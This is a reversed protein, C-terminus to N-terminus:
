SGAIREVDRALEAFLALLVPRLAAAARVRPNLAHRVAPDLEAFARGDGGDVVFLPEYGFGGSGRAARAIRGDCQGSVVVVEDSWPNALALVCRFHATRNGEDIEELDRLLAANNEADTAREHAYSASRVGPRGGLADVELGSEEAVALMGTARCAIRAKKSAAAELTPEDDDLPSADAGDSLSVFDCGLDGLLARLEVLKPEHKNALVITLWESM